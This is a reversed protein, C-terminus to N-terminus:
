VIKSSNIIILEAIVKVLPIEFRLIKEDKYPRYRERNKGSKSHILANRTYYIRKALKAYVGESDNWAIVPANAFLVKNNQYYNVIGVSEAELKDKLQEIEVYEKIVYKLSELENGQGTQDNMNMRKKVFTALEFVKDEDKYSFDPHTLKDTLDSVMKRRFIEDYFYEMIHYFSIYKIYGDPTASALRYYDVVDSIYERHPIIETLEDEENRRMLINPPLVADIDVYDNISNGTKYIYEFVFSTKKKRSLDISNKNMEIRISYERIAQPLIIKWDLDVINGYRLFSLGVRFRRPLIRGGVEATYENQDIFEMLLFVCYEISCLDVIYVINEEEDRFEMPNGTRRTFTNDFDMVCEYTNDKCLELGVRTANTISDFINKLEDNKLVFTNIGDDRRVNRLEIEVDEDNQELLRQGFARCILDKLEYFNAM